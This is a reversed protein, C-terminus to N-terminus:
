KETKRDSGLAIKAAYIKMMQLSEKLNSAYLTYKNVLDVSVKEAIHQPNYLALLDSLAQSEIIESLVKRALRLRRDISDAVVGQVYKEINEPTADFDDHLITHLIDYKGAEHVANSIIYFDIDTSLSDFIIDELRKKSIDKKTLPKRCDDTATFSEDTWLDAYGNEAIRDIFRRPSTKLVTGPIGPLDRGKTVSHTEYTTSGRSFGDTTAYYSFPIAISAEFGSRDRIQHIMFDWWLIAKGINPYEEPIAHRVLTSTPELRWRDLGNDKYSQEVNRYYDQVRKIYRPSMYEVDIDHNLGIVEDNREVFLEDSKAVYLASNWLDRRVEGITPATYGCISYRLDLHPYTVQADTCAQISEIVGSSTIQDSPANLYLVVSFPENTEQKAYQELARPIRAAEQHAAVPILVVTRALPTDTKRMMNANNMALKIEKDTLIYWFLSEVYDGNPRMIDMTGRLEPDIHNNM